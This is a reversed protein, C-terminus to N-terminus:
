PSASETSPPSRRILRRLLDVHVGLYGRRAVHALRPGLNRHAAALAFFPLAPYRHHEAHFPMDWMLFRIPFVTHTTRTNTLPDDDDSCGTHEALLIARLLPQALAVPLLWYTLFLPRGLAVSVAIALGYVALQLRVSRVVQPRTKDNLFGYGGVRGAAIAFHTRLKGTWWTLGSMEVAYTLLSTPKADELEPDKGPIQTFRHHWGHYHRYFDSNYFSLLGALWGVAHNLWQSSFATRHVCEHMAAFMTVLTFGLAVAAVVALLGPGSRQLAFAYLIGAGGIASLHGALRLLGRGDSRRQLRRLEEASIPSAPGDPATTDVQMGFPALM